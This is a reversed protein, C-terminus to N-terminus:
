ERYMIDFGQPSVGFSRVQALNLVYFAPAAQEVAGAM